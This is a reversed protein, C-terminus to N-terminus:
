KSESSEITEVINTKTWAAVMMAVAVRWKTEVYKINIRMLLLSVCGYTVYQSTSQNTHIFFIRTAGYTFQFLSKNETCLFLGISSAYTCSWRMLNGYLFNLLIRHVTAHGNMLVLVHMWTPSCRVHTSMSSRRHHRDNINNGNHVDYLKPQLYYYYYNISM